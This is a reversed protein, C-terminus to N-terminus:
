GVVIPDAVDADFATDAPDLQPAPWSAADRAEDGTLPGDGRGNEEGAASWLGPVLVSWPGWDPVSGVAALTETPAFLAAPTQPALNLLIATLSGAQDPVAAPPQALGGPVGTEVAADITAPRSLVPFSLLTGGTAGSGAGSDAPLAATAVTNAGPVEPLLQIGPALTPEMAGADSHEFGLAHGLEHTVVTRLDMRAPDGTTSWGWGAANQDIWIEGPSAFGLEARPLDVVHVALQDLAALQQPDVGAARWENIAEAVITQLQDASLGDTVAQSGLTEAQLEHGDLVTIVVQNSTIPAIGDASVTATNPLDLRCTNFSGIVFDSLTATPSQSSRTEAMFNAFCSGLGLATLDVGEELFEGAAPGSNHSKDTFSWPVTVPAGNVIAFTTGAPATVPVLSGGSDTGTWRFVKITSTSGGQTFDSVLLIDGDAHVGTFPSGSTTPNNTSLGVPNQFFWFGATADGSNDFRDLGAYLIIHGNSPDVYMAAYAHTIDNKAQPKSDTFLWPGNQIGQTDKSGGGTFIDDSTSNVTDTAFSHAFSSGGNGFVANSWDDGAAPDDLANGDLEFPGNPLNGTGGPLTTPGFIDLPIVASVIVTSTAGAPLSSSFATLFDGTSISTTDFTSSFVTWTLLAAEPLQDTVQVNTAPGAGDNTVTITFSATDGPHIVDFGNVAKTIELHPLLTVSSSAQASIINPFSGLNQALTFHVNATNVLPTPDGAAIARTETLQFAQGPALSTFGTGVITEGNDLIANQNTDLFVIGKTLADAELNYGAATTLLTDTFSSNPNSTSLVLNPSDTSSTNSVTYTYTIVQGLTTATTPNATVTMKASPQFLNVSNTASATIPDEMGDQDDTGTFTVKSNTPDQDGAQVTRTVFITLSAGPALPQTFDFASSISTVGVASPQQLTHNVVVNGLLTDTVSQIYLPMAGTNQVTLPYSVPDGVKSVGTFQPAALSCVPFSGLVFDSLTATPSQSSRTEAMFSAFCGSLGLATLDVGEELFEGQAPQSQGSKNTYSWPVSIPGSNVIAFTTNPVDALAQLHGTADDGVWKFVKITSVSGGTTFDSVLLIDGDSHTGIFPGTGNGSVNPSETINNRFFWFGATADGSNDFRDLGAYLISHGNSSDTYMAAYAHTIDNKAQPKSDTSLWPGNQIGNTDKSGGGTFIDDTNSNVADTLFASAIAGSVPPPTANNDAFVQDWDHTTTSIANADLEFVSTVSPTVRDELQEVRLRGRRLTRKHELRATSERTHDPRTGLLSKPRMM